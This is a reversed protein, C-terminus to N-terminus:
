EEIFLNRYNRKAYIVRHIIVQKLGEDVVFFVIYNEVFLTRFGQKALYPDKSLPCRFPACSLASIADYFKAILNAATMPANLRAAIYAFVDGLDEDASPTVVVNYNDM